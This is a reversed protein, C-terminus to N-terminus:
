ILDGDDDYFVVMNDGITIWNYDNSSWYTLQGGTLRGLASAASIAAPAFSLAANPPTHFRIDINPILGVEKELVDKLQGLAEMISM